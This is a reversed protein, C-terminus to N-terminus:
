HNKEPVLGWVNVPVNRNDRTGDGLQGSQNAGWCKVAGGSILACTHNWGASIAIAKQNAPKVEGPKGGAYVKGTLVLALCIMLGSLFKQKKEENL